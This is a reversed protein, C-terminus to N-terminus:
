EGLDDIFDQFLDERDKEDIARWRADGRLLKSVESYKSLYGINPVEEIM